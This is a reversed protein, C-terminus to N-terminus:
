DNILMKKPGETEDNIDTKRGKKQIKYVNIQSLVAAYIDM